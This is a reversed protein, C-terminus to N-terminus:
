EHSRESKSFTYAKVAKTLENMSDCNEFGNDCLAELAEAPPICLLNRKVIWRKANRHRRSLNLESGGLHRVSTVFGDDEQRVLALRFPGTHGKLSYALLDGAEARTFNDELRMDEDLMEKYQKKSIPM